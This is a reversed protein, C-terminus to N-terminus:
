KFIKLKNVIPLDKAKGTFANVLGMIIIISICLGIIGLPFTVWWPTVECHNGLNYGLFTGCSTKVRILSTLINYLILFAIWVVMLDMGQRAHFKVFRNEKELFYPIPPIIYALAAMGKGSVKDSNNFEGSKDETDMINEFTKTIKEKYNKDTKM